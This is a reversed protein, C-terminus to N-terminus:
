NQEGGPSEHEASEQLSITWIWDRKSKSVPILTEPGDGVQVRVM